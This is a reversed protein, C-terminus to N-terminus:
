KIRKTSIIKLKKYESSKNTKRFVIQALNTSNILRITLIKWIIQIYIIIIKDETKNNNIKKQNYYM